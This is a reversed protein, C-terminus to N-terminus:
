AVERLPRNGKPTGYRAGERNKKRRRRRAAKAANRKTRTQESIGHNTLVTVAVWGNSAKELPLWIGPAVEAYWDAHGHDEVALPHHNIPEGAFATLAELEARAADVDLHPKVRERYRLAAHDTVNIKM